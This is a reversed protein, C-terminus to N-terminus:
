QISNNSLIGEPFVEFAKDVIVPYLKYSLSVLLIPLFVKMAVPACFLLSLLISPFIYAFPYFFTFFLSLANCLM